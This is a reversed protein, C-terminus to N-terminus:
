EDATVKYIGYCYGARTKDTNPDYHVEVCTLFEGLTNPGVVEGIMHVMNGSFNLYKQAFPADAM